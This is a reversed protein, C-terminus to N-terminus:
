SICPRGCTRCSKSREVALAEMSFDHLDVLFLNNRRLAEASYGALLATAVHAALAGLVATANSLLANDRKPRARSPLLFGYCALKIEPRWLTIMGGIRERSDFAAVQMVPLEHEIAQSEVFLRADPKNACSIVLQCNKLLQSLGAREVRCTVPEILCQRHPAIFRALVDVKPRGIDNKHAFVFPGLQEAEVRQGDVIVIHENGAAVLGIAVQSGIRGCGVVVVKSRALKSQRRQGLVAVQARQWLLRKSISSLM